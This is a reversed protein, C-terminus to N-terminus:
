RPRGARTRRSAPATAPRSLSLERAKALRRVGEDLGFWADAPMPVTEEKWTGDPQRVGRPALRLAQLVRQLRQAALAHRVQPPRAQAAVTTFGGAVGTGFFDRDETWIPCNM